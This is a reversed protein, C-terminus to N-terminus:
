TDSLELVGFAKRNTMGISSRFRVWASSETPRNRVPHPYTSSAPPNIPVSIRVPASGSDAVPPAEIYPAIFINKLGFVHCHLWCGSIINDAGHM